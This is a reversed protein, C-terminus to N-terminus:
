SNWHYTIHTKRNPNKTIKKDTYYSDQKIHTTSIEEVVSGKESSFEHRTGPKITIISGSNYVNTKGNLKMKISGFLVHFTEEKIKHWQEPHKQGPFIVLIKKCYKRNLITIMVLGFKRFKELGYHHSIEFNYQGKLFQNSKQLLLKTFNVINEIKSRNNKITCDKLFLPKDKFLKKKSKLVSYKSLIYANLQNALPPFALYIDEDKILKGKSINRKLFVGRKLSHLSNQEKKNKKFVKGEDGCIKYTEIASKLWNNFQTPNASYKNLAYKKSPLGVHKEFITAGMSIAVPIISYDDPNEHTSFGIQLSPFNNKLYKLRYLNLKNKPTPYEAVCHMLAFNKGRNSLFSVVREINILSAGATSAIIPKNTTAIKEILSWDNFSCSAIKIIDFGDRVVNDVSQEDFPTCMSIFRNKKICHIIKKFEHNKLETESFRKILSIDKREQLDKHIFTKLNRYQLKFAFNFPHKRTIKGYHNILDIAHRLDGMHNNAMELVFLKKPILM